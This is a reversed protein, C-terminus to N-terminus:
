MVPWAMATSPPMVAIQAAHSGVEVDVDREDLVQPQAQQLLGVATRQDLEVRARLVQVTPLSYMAAHQQGSSSTASLLAARESSGAQM